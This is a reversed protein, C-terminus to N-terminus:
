PPDGTLFRIKAAYDGPPIPQFTQPYPALELLGILYNGCIALNTQSTHLTDPCPALGALAELVVLADGAVFCEATAPCRSDSPVAVFKVRLVGDVLVQDGIKLTVDVPSKVQAVHSPETLWRCGSAALVLAIAVVLRM